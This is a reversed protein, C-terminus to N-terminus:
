ERSASAQERSASAQERSPPDQERSASAPERSPGGYERCISTKERSPRPKERSAAGKDQRPAEDEGSSLRPGRSARAEERFAAPQELSPAENKRPAPGPPRSASGDYATDSNAAGNDCAEGASIVGDGCIATCVSPGTNFGSLTLKFSSGNTKRETQFVAIQYVDGSTLHLQAASAANLVFSQELPVHWGGLDLALVGNVFVWVDDDGIVDHTSRRPSRPKHQVKGQQTL